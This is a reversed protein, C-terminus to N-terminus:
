QTPSVLWPREMLSETTLAGVLRLLVRLMFLELMMLVLFLKFRALQALLLKLCFLVPSAYTGGIAGINSLTFTGGELQEKGLKGASGLQQLHNLERAIEIISLDQVNKINPVILGSPTDMAIGINHSGKGM